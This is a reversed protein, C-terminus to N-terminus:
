QKLVFVEDEGEELWRASREWNKGKMQSVKGKFTIKQFTLTTPERSLTVKGSKISEARTPILKSLCVVSLARKMATLISNGGCAAM